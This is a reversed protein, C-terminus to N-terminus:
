RALGWGLAGWSRMVRATANTLAALGGAGEAMADVALSGPTPRDLHCVAIVEDGDRTIEAGAKEAISVMPRNHRTTFIYVRDLGLNRGRQLCRRLLGHGVGAKRYAPEVTFSAEGTRNPAVFLEGVARLVGGRFWGIVHAGNAFTEAARARLAKDPMPRLFRRRLCEDPLRAWHEYLLHSDAPSLSGFWSRSEDDILLM